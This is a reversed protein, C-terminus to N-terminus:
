AVRGTYYQVGAMCVVAISEGEEEIVKLVDETRITDEGERPQVQILAEDATLGNYEILSVLAYQLFANLPLKPERSPKISITHWLTNVLHIGFLRHNSPEFFNM